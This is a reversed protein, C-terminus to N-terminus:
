HLKKSAKNDPNKKCHNTEHRKINSCTIKLKCYSCEKFKQEEDEKICYARFDSFTPVKSSEVNENDDEKNLKSNDIINIELQSISM